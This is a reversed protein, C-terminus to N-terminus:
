PIGVYSDSAVLRYDVLIEVGKGKGENLRNGTCEAEVNELIMLLKHFLRSLEKPVYEFVNGDQNKVAMAYKDHSNDFEKESGLIEGFLHM